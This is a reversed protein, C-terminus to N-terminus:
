EEKVIFKLEPIRLIMLDYSGEAGWRYNNQRGNRWKVKVWNDSAGVEGAWGLVIGHNGDGGNQDGWKWDRGRDVATGKELRERWIRKFPSEEAEVGDISVGIQYEGEVFIQYKVIWCHSSEKMVDVVDQIREGNKTLTVVIGASPEVGKDLLVKFQNNGKVPQTLGEVRIERRNIGGRVTSKLPDGNNGIFALKTPQLANRDWFEKKLDNLRNRAQKSMMAIDVQTGEKLLQDTFSKASDLKVKSLEVAEREATVRKSCEGRSTDLSQHLQTEADNLQARYIEFFETIKRHCDDINESSSLEVHEIDRLHRDFEVSKKGIVEVLSELTKRLRPVVNKILQHRQRDHIKHRDEHECDRCIVEEDVECYLKLEEGEHEFCYRKQEMKKPDTRIDAMPVTQHKKTAKMKGHTRICDVCLYCECEGCYVEAANGDEANNCLIKKEEKGEAESIRLIEILNSMTFHTKYADADNPQIQHDQKCLPCKFSNQEDEKAKAILLALCERCLCHLCDLSKPVKLRDHCIPCTLEHFVKKVIPTAM